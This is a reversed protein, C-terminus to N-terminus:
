YPEESSQRSEQAIKKKVDDELTEFLRRCFEDMKKVQVELLEIRMKLDIVELDSSM